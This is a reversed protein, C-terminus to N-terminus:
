SLFKAMCYNSIEMGYDTLKLMKDNVIIANIELLEGLVKEYKKKIDIKYRNLFDELDIGTLLRLGLFIGEEIEMENTIEELNHKDFNDMNIYKNLDSENKFRLNRIKSTSNLGFGYYDDNNWYILNHKSEYGVRAYNAIEYRSFKFKSLKKNILKRMNLLLEEEPLKLVGKKQEEYFKTGPEVILGYTSIHQLNLDMAIGLDRDLRELSDGPLGFMLDISINKFGVKKALNITKYIDAEGHIRGLKGLMIEDFTQVGISIRDFGMEYYKGISDNNCTGPNIEITMEVLNSLDLKEKLKLVVLEINEPKVTSPTGGGFYITNIPRGDYELLDIEMLLKQFYKDELGYNTFSVFDCYNCKQICFPIHIYVGINKNMM